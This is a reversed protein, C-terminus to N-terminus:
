PRLVGPVERSTTSSSRPTITPAVNVPVSTASQNCAAVIASTPSIGTSRRHSATGRKGGAAFDPEVQELFALGLEGAFVASLCM